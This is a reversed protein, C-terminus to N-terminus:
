GEVLLANYGKKSSAIMLQQRAFVLARRTYQAGDKVEFLYTGELYTKSVHIVGGLEDLLM